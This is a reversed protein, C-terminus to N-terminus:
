TVYPQSTACHLQKSNLFKALIQSRFISKNQQLFFESESEIGNNSSNKYVSCDSSPLKSIKKNFMHAGLMIAKRNGTYKINECSM